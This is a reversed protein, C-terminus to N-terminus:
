YNWNSLKDVDVFLRGCIKKVIETNNFDHFNQSMWCRITQVKPYSYTKNYDKLPILNKFEEKNM